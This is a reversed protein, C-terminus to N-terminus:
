RLDVFNSHNPTSGGKLQRVHKALSCCTRGEDEDMTESACFFVKVRSKLTRRNPIAFQEGKVQGSTTQRLKM